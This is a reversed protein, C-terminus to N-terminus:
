AAGCVDDDNTHHNRCECIVERMDWDIPALWHRIAGRETFESESWKDDLVQLGLREAGAIALLLLATDAGPMVDIHYRGGEADLTTVVDGRGLSVTGMVGWTVEEPFAMDAFPEPVMADFRSTEM